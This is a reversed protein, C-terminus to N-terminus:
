YMGLRAKLVPKIIKWWDVFPKMKSFSMKTHYVKTVPAEACKFRTVCQYLFYPELEYGDLAPNWLNMKRCIDTRFLRFGNSADTLWRLAMISFFISYAKTSLLRFLPQDVTKGGAIYRSGIVLDNGERLKALLRPIESPEDQNDGGMICCMEFGNQMAYDIGTRIAFGVGKRERFEIVTAGANKAEQGTGDTNGDTVVLVEDVVGGRPKLTFKSVLAGIKGQENHAPLIVLLKEDM